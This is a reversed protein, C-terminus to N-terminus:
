SQDFGFESADQKITVGQGITAGNKGNSNSKLEFLGRYGNVISQEIIMEATKQNSNSKKVLDAFSRQESKVNKFKFRFQEHKFSLWDEWNKKFEDGFPAFSIEEKKENKENKCEKTTAGKKGEEQGKRAKRSAGKKEEFQLKEWKTLTVAQGKRAKKRLVEGSSELKEMALRVQKVSLGTNMALKEFSTILTGPEVTLGKWKKQEHNVSCLLYVLLRTANHDDWWEWETLSRHLKIWGTNM